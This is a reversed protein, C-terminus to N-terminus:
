KSNFNLGVQIRRGNDATWWQANGFNANVAGGEFNRLEEYNRYNTHNFINVGELILGVNGQRPLSFRKELRLDVQQFSDGTQSNYDIAIRRPGWGLTEDKISYPVGSGWQVITSVRFDYPLGVIGSATVHHEEINSKV